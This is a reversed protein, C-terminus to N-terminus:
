DPKGMFVRHYEFDGDSPASAIEKLESWAGAAVQGSDGYVLSWLKFNGESDKGTVLLNWDGEYCSAIGSLDGTSKDWAVRNGWSGNVRKM